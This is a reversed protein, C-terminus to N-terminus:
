KASNKLVPMPTVVTPVVYGEDIFRKEAYEWNATVSWMSKCFEYFGEMDKILVSNVSGGVPSLKNFGVGGSVFFRTGDCSYEITVFMPVGYTGLIEKCFRLEKDNLGSRKM